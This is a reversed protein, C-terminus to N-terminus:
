IRENDREAAARSVAKIVGERKVTVIGINEAAIQGHRRCAQGLRFRQRRCNFLRCPRNQDKKHDVVGNIDQFEIKIERLFAAEVAFVAPIQLFKDGRM